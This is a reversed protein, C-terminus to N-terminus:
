SDDDGRGSLVIDRYRAIANEYVQDRREEPISWLRTNRMATEGAELQQRLLAEPNGYMKSVARLLQTLAMNMALLEAILDDEFQRYDAM